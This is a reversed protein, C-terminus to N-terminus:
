DKREVDQPRARYGAREVAKVLTETEVGPNEIHVTAEGLLYSVEAGRVGPVSTLESEVHSECGSCTLGEVKLVVLAGTANEQGAFASPTAESFGHAFPFGAQLTPYFTALVTLGTATWLFGKGLRGAHRDPQSKAECCEKGTMKPRYTRWFAFGLLLAAVGLFYPRLPALAAGIGLAGVGIGTLVLPGICCASALVAAMVAGAGSTWDRLMTIMKPQGAM